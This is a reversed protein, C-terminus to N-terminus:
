KGEVGSKLRAAEEPYYKTFLETYRQFASEKLPAKLSALSWFILEEEEIYSQSANIIKGNCDLRPIAVKAANRIESVSTGAMIKEIKKKLVLFVLDSRIGMKLYGLADNTVKAIAMKKAKNRDEAKM